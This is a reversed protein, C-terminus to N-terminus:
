RCQFPVAPAEFDVFLLWNICEALDPDNKHNHSERSLTRLVSDTYTEQKGVTILLTRTAQELILVQNELDLVRNELDSDAVLEVARTGGSPNTENSSASCSAGILGLCLVVFGWCTGIRMGSGLRHVIRRYVVGAQVPKSM